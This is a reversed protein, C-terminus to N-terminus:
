AAPAVTAAPNRALLRFRGPTVGTARKFRVNLYEVHEFGTLVAIQKLPQDTETLLQKIRAVQVRRIEAQPSRGLYFRFGHELRARSTAAQRVVDEVKIGNCAQKRIISLATSVALDAIVLSDTSQRTVIKVPSVRIESAARREGRMRRTLEEAALYGARFVDTAVSSLPPVSLECRVQENNVGIVALEEPVVLGVQRAAELVQRGRLDHAAMIGAPLPLTKLWEAIQQVTRANEAPRLGSGHPPSFEAPTCGLLKLAEFFGDRRELSWNWDAYGCFYLHRYGREYLDEAAMHGVGLNDPRIKPVGPFAPCDNLDILPLRKAACAAVLRPTTTRSIVGDWPQESIWEPTCEARAENDVFIDWAGHENQFRSIGSLIAESEGIVANLVIMVKPTM